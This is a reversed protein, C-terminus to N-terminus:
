ECEREEEEARGGEKGVRRGWGRVTMELRNQSGRRAWLIGKKLEVDEHGDFM